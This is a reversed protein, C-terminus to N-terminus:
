LQPQHFEARTQHGYAQKKLPAKPTYELNEYTTALKQAYCHLWNGPVKSKSETSISNVEYLTRYSTNKCSFVKHTM